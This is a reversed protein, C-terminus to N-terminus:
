LLMLVGAGDERRRILGANPGSIIICRVSHDHSVYYHMYYQVEYYHIYHLSHIHNTRNLKRKIRFQKNKLKLSHFKTNPLHNVWGDMETAKVLFISFYSVFFVCNIDIM